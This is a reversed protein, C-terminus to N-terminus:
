IEDGKANYYSEEWYDGQHIYECKPCYSTEIRVCGYPMGEVYETEIKNECYKCYVLVM